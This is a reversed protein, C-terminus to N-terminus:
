HKERNKSYTHSPVLEKVGNGNIFREYKGRPITPVDFALIRTFTLLSQRSLHQILPFKLFSFYNWSNLSHRTSSQFHFQGHLRSKQSTLILPLCLLIMHYRITSMVEPSPQIKPSLGAYPFPGLCPFVHGTFTTLPLSTYVHSTGEYQKLIDKQVKGSKRTGVHATNTGRMHERWMMLFTCTVYWTLTRRRRNFTSITCYFVRTIQSYSKRSNEQRVDLCGTLLGTERNQRGLLITAKKVEADVRARDRTAREM